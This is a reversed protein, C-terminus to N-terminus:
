VFKERRQLNILSWLLSIIICISLIIRNQSITKDWIISNIESPIKFPNIFLNWKSKELPNSLFWFLLGIIVMIVAASNGNHLLTAFLLSMCALFVLPYMLQYVIEAVQLDTISFVAVWALIILLGLLFLLTIGFRVLYVKYRYNPIGFIIELMRSDKDNQINYIIPYFLILVGPFLLSNYMDATDPTNNSFLFVAVIILYFIVAALLFYIFKNGFVIKLNYNIIKLVLGIRESISM